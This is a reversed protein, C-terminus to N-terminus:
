RFLAKADSLRDSAASQPSILTRPALGQNFRDPWDEDAHCRRLPNSSMGEREFRALRDPDDTGPTLAMVQQFDALRISGQAENKRYDRYTWIGCPTCFALFRASIPLSINSSTTSSGVTLCPGDVPASPGTSPQTTWPRSRRTPRTNPVRWSPWTAMSTAGTQHERSPDQGHTRHRLRGFQDDFSAAMLGVMAQSSSDYGEPAALLYDPM